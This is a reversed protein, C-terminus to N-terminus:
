QILHRIHGGKITERTNAGLQHHPAIHSSFTQGSDILFDDTHHCITSRSNQGATGM